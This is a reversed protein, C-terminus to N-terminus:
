GAKRQRLQKLSLAQTGGAVSAKAARTKSRPRSSVPAPTEDLIREGIADGVIRDIPADDMPPSPRRVTPPPTAKKPDERPTGDAPAVAGLLREFEVSPAIVEDLTPALGLAEDATADPSLLALRTISQGTVGLLFRQGDVSAVVLEGKQALSTRALVTLTPPEEFARGKAVAKGLLGKKKMAFAGAGLIATGALLKWWLGEAAPEPALELPKDGTSRLNLKTGTVDPPPTALLEEDPPLATDTLGEIPEPRAPAPAAAPVEALPAVESAIPDEKAPREGKSTAPETPEVVPAKPAKPAKPSAVTDAAALSSTLTIAAVALGIVSRRRM